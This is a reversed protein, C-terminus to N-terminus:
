VSTTIIGCIWGNLLYKDFAKEPSLAINIQSLKPDSHLKIYPHLVESYFNWILVHIHMQTAILVNWISSNHNATSSSVAWTLSESVNTYTGTKKQDVHKHPLINM